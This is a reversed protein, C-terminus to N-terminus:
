IASIQPVTTSRNESPPPPGNPVPEFEQRGSCNDKQVRLERGTALLVDHYTREPRDRADNNASGFVEVTTHSTRLPAPDCQTTPESGSRRRSHSRQLSRQVPHTLGGSGFTAVIALGVVLVQAGAVSGARNVAHWGRQRVQTLMNNALAVLHFRDAV